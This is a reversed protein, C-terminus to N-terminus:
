KRNELNVVVSDPKLMKYKKIELVKSHDHEYWNDSLEFGKQLAGLSNREKVHEAFVSKIELGKM